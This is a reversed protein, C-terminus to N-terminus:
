FRFFRLSRFLRWLIPLGRRLLFLRIAQRGVGSLLYRWRPDHALRPLVRRLFMWALIVALAILALRLVM